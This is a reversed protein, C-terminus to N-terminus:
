QKVFPMSGLNKGGLVFNLSYIGGQLGAVNLSILGNDMDQANVRKSEVQRGSQDFMRVLLDERVGFGHKITLDDLTPNPYIIEVYKLLESQLEKIGTTGTTFLQLIEDGTLAKNYLKVEDLAGHFYERGPFELNNAMALSRGTSNLTGGASIRNVEVGDIYIINDTGDHVMTVYWWFGTVLENGGGSDMDKISPDILGNKSNTTWVVKQHPPLSVKWRQDWNGFDLIYAEPDDLNIGDVRVWFSVTAFDSILQVGNPVLVSDAVGDFALAMTSGPHGIVSEFAPNGGITGHNNYPTADNADGEFKYHAVLGPEATVVPETTSATIDAIESVNGSLDYAEVEFTYLTLPDLGGIFISTENADLSDVFVGDLYVVYGGIGGVDTSPDWSFNASNPGASVVLNSPTSPKITDPAEDLGTFLSIFSAASENGASDVASVGFEYLTSPALDAITAHSEETTQVVADNQYVNYGAIGSEGDVSPQWTLSVTTFNVTGELGAPPDPATIDTEGPDADQAAFLAAVEPATLATEYILVDDLSGDFYYNVDIPDFGIGLPHVTSHLTGVADTQNALVGNMYIYDKLGDHVMVLHTWTGPVLENGDGADVNTCCSTAYTTWVIKGHDPLSIKWREQWGGFSLLYVEGSAPLSNVNVWFSISALPSNLQPSNDATIGDDGNFNMAHNSRGFRDLSAVAGFVDGNNHYPSVDQANANLPYDAVIDGPFVPVVRQEAYLDAVQQDTLDVNYIQVEDMDGNMFYDHDIPDWGIGVEHTTHKLAGGVNASASMVGNIYIKDQVMGHSAVVHTWTGLELASGAELNSCCSTANTTWVVKGHGPLSIKWREQWGGFSMLYVEGSAPFENMKVWFSVTTWDSNYQISNAVEVYASEAPDIAVANNAYGFRDYTLEANYSEGDNRFQSADKFDGSFPLNLVLPDPDIVTTNQETYLDNIESDSLAYNYIQVEDLSGDFYYNVDIPDYGIGLPHTTSKLDGPSDQEAVPTGNMYIRDKVGDHVMVVHTWTGVILENGGGADLNSCCSAANTTWVIKGHDPLSIKWREQWGGFSLLYTEGSAPFSSVNVWFSVTTTPSNLQSSNAAKVGSDVGNFSAAKEGFGFRDTTFEVNNGSAHNAFSSEDRFNGSFSYSAVLENVAVPPLSQEAYLNAVDSDSLPSNFITVEDLAGNFFYAGDIPDYGIGLPHATNGLDGPSDSEGALDGNVYIKDKVGDHVMALHTWIGIVLANGPDLNSCCTTANTTWVPKGHDPLSIKWREQWGGFSLLYVEGSTPLEDVRVWFSVSTTPSNLQPANNAVLYSQVGDFLFAQNARGFRDQTLSAGHISANNRYSSVDNANGSFPYNAVEDQAGTRPVVFVLLLIPLLLQYIRRM